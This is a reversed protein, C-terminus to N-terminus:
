CYSCEGAVCLEGLNYVELWWCFFVRSFIGILGFGVLINVQEVGVKQM